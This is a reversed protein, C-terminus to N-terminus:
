PAKLRRKREQMARPVAILATGINRTKVTMALACREIADGVSRCGAARRGGCLCAPAEFIM